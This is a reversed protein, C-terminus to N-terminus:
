GTAGAACEALFQTKVAEAAEEWANREKDPLDSWSWPYIAMLDRHKEYCVQGLTKESM